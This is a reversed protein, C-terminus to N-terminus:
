GLFDKSGLPRSGEALASARSPVFGVGEMVYL